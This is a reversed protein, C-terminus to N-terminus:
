YIVKVEKTKALKNFAGSSADIRDKTVALPFSEMEQKYPYNWHARVMYVNGRDVQVSYTDARVVKSGKGSVKDAKVVYGPNTDITREASEKGGSGGEQEVWCVVGKGDAKMTDSIIQERKDASWQGRVEDMIIWSMTGDIKALAMKIGCTWSTQAGAEKADTGAKDWYRVMRIIKIHAPLPNDLIQIRDVNFMGGGPPTPTQGVQGAYGYQGLDVEMGSLVNWDM